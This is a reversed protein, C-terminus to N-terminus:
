NPQDIFGIFRGEAKDFETPGNFEALIGRGQEDRTILAHWMKTKVGLKQHELIIHICEERGPAHELLKPFSKRDEKKDLKLVWAEMVTVVMIAKSKKSILRIADTFRQTGSSNAMSIGLQQPTIVAITGVDLSEGTAPNVQAGIFCVPTLVGDEEFNSRAIDKISDIFSEAVALDEVGPKVHEM